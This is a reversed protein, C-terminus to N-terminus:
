PFQPRYSQNQSKVNICYGWCMPVCMCNHKTTNHQTTFRNVILFKVRFLLCKKMFLFRKDRVVGLGPFFSFKQSKIWDLNLRFRSLILFFLSSSLFPCSVLSWLDISFFIFGVCNLWQVCLKSQCSCRDILM